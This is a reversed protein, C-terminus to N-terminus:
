SYILIDGLLLHLALKVILPNKAFAEQKKDGINRFARDKKKLTKEFFLVALIIYM